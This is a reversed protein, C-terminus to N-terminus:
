SGASHIGAWTRIWNQSWVKQFLMGFLDTCEYNVLM